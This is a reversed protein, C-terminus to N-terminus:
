QFAFVCACVHPSFCLGVCCIRWIQCAPLHLHLLCSTWENGKLLVAPLSPSLYFAPPLSSYNIMGDDPLQGLLVWIWVLAACCGSTMWSNLMFTWQCKLECKEGEFEM